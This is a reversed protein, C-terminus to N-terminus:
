IDTWYQKIKQILWEENKDIYGDSKILSQIQDNIIKRKSVGSYKKLYLLSETVLKNTTVSPKGANDLITNEPHHLNIFSESLFASLIIRVSENQWKQLNKKLQRIEEKVIKGDIAMTIFFLTGISILESQPIFNPNTYFNLVSNPLLKGSWLSKLEMIFIHNKKNEKNHLIAQIDKFLVTIKESTLEKELNKCIQLIETKTNKQTHQFIEEITSHANQFSKGFSWKQM